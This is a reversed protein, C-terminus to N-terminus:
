HYPRGRDNERRARELSFYLVNGFLPLISTDFLRPVMSSLTKLLISERYHIRRYVGTVGLGEETAKVISEPVQVGGITASIGAERRAM